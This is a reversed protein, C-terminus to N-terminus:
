HARRRGGALAGAVIAGIVLAAGALRSAGVSEGLFLVSVAIAAIPLAATALGAMWTEVSPAGRYWLITCLVSSTLAYWVALLWVAPSAALGSAAALESAALPVSLALGALSVGLSLRIPAYARAMRASILVFSAECLVALGVLLNGLWSRAGGDAQGQVLILGALALAIALLQGREPRERNYLVGLLAAVAPLTAMIIGADTGATRKVGELLFATYLVSGLLALLMLDRGQRGTMTALRPGAEYRALVALVASAVAFRFAIFLYIPLEAVIAKGFPVNAGTLSMAAVLYLVATTRSRPPSMLEKM